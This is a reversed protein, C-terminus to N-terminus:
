RRKGAPLTSGTWTISLIANLSFGDSAPSRPKSPKRGPKPACCPPHCACSTRRKKCTSLHDCSM